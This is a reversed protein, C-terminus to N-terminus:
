TYMVFLAVGIFAAMVGFITALIKWISKPTKGNVKGTSGNVFFNYLKKRYKFNGVYVPLMVYKYTVNNHTTSVNLYAVKDYVYQSLIGSRINRDIINKADNWCDILESDYHYAMFGLLYNEEYVTSENTRYPSIKDLEKQSFKSGATILLDDYDRCFTGSITRWVTYHEVRRNKGSGVTRTHTTGIRGHYYSITQSDFTFCPAYVGKINDANLKKKFDRPAYLRKRAWSKSYELAKDSDFTFPILANPKLGALEDSQRVHATGCFPCSKATESKQLVVKAGCNDCSFVVTDEASWKVSSSLSTRIDIEEAKVNKAFDIKNDCHECYLCQSNPDFKMNSGCSSCKIRKVDAGDTEIFQNNINEIPM